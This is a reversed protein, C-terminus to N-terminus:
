MDGLTPYPYDNKILFSILRGKFYLKWMFKWTLEPYAKRLRKMINIYTFINFIPYPTAGHTCYLLYKKSYRNIRYYLDMLFTNYIGLSLIAVIYTNHTREFNAFKNEYEQRSLIIDLIFHIFEDTVCIFIIIFGYIKYNNFLSKVGDNYLWFVVVSALLIIEVMLLIVFGWFLIYLFRYLLSLATNKIVKIKKINNMM